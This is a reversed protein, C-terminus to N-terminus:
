KEPQESLDFPDFERIENELSEMQAIMRAVIEGSRKKDPEGCLLRIRERIAQKLNSKSELLDSIKNFIGVAESSEYKFHGATRIVAEIDEV